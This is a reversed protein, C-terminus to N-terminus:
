QGEGKKVRLWCTRGHDTLEYVHLTISRGREMKWTGPSGGLMYPARLLGREVLRRAAMREANHKRDHPLVIKGAASERARLLLELERAGVTSCGTAISHRPVEEIPAGAQAGPAFYLWARGASV